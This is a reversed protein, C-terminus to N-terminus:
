IGNRVRRYARGTPVCRDYGPVFHRPFRGGFVTGYPVTHDPAALGM